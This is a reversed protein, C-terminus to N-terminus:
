STLKGSTTTSTSFRNSVVMTPSTKYEKSLSATNFHELDLVHDTYWQCILPGHEELDTNSSSTKQTKWFCVSWASLIQVTMGGKIPWLPKLTLAALSEALSLPCTQNPLWVEHVQSYCKTPISLRTMMAIRIHQNSVTQHNPSTRVWLIM